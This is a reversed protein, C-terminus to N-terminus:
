DGHAYGLVLLNAFAYPHGYRIGQVGRGDIQVWTNRWSTRKMYRLSSFVCAPDQLYQDLATNQGWPITVVMRGSPALLHRMHILARIANEPARENWGIHEVTSVSIIFDYPRPPHYDLIDLNKVGPAREDKDVIDHTCQTYHSLVNGVELVRGGMHQRLEWLAIPVEVVREGHITAGYPHFMYRYRRGEYEFSRVWYLFPYLRVYTPFLWERVPRDALRTDLVAQRVRLCWHRLIGYSGCGMLAGRLSGRGAVEHPAFQRNGDGTTCADDTSPDRM